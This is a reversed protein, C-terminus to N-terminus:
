KADSEMDRTYFCGIVALGFGLAGCLYSVHSAAPVTMGLLIIGLGLIQYKVGRM